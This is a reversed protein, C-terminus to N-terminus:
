NTSVDPEEGEQDAQYVGISKALGNVWTGETLVLEQEAHRRQRLVRLLEDIGVGETIHAGPVPARNPNFASGTNPHRIM